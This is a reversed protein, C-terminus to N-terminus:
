RCQRWRARGSARARAEEGERRRAMAWCSLLMCAVGVAYVARASVLQSWAHHERHWCEVHWSILVLAVAVTVGWVMLPSWGQPKVRDCAREAFMHAFLGVLILSGACLCYLVATHHQVSDLLRICSM